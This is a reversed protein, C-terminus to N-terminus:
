QSSRDLKHLADRAHRAEEAAGISEAQAICGALEAKAGAADGSEAKLGALKARQRLVGPKHGAIDLLQQAHEYLTWAEMTQGRAHRVDGLGSTAYGEAYRNRGASAAEVAQLFADEAADVNGARLQATGLNSLGVAANMFDGAELSLVVANELARFSDDIRGAEDYVMAAINLAQSLGLRYGLERAIALATEVYREAGALDGDQMALDGLHTCADVRFVARPTGELVELTRTLHTRADSIRGGVNHIFGLHLHAIGEFDRAGAEAGVRVAQNLLVTAEDILGQQRRISGLNCLVGAELRKDSVERAMAQCQTYADDAGEIDRATNLANGLEFTAWAQQDPEACELARRAFDAAQEPRQDLRLAVSTKILADARDRPRASSHAALREVLALAEPIRFEAIARRYAINLYYTEIDALAARQAPSQNSQAMRAHVAMEAAYRELGADGLVTNKMFALAWEHRAADDGTKLRSAADHLLAHRLLYDTEAFMGRM